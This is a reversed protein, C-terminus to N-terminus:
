GVEGYFLTFSTLERAAEYLFYIPKFEFCKWFSDYMLKPDPPDKASTQKAHELRQNVEVPDM